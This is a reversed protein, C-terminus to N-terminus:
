IMFIVLLVKAKKRYHIREKPIIKGKEYLGEYAEKV